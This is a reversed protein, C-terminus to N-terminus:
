APMRAGHQRSLVDEFVAEVARMHQHIDFVATVRARAARAMATRRAPDNVLSVIAGALADADRPPVLLGTEGDVVIELPGGERPAIVPRGAAMAELVVRGFPERDSAHIVVDMADMCAAVDRRAGTVMVHGALDPAAIREKLREAYEAGLRHVGGVVLCRLGPVHRRARAVADAVLLQGKWRQVHGVIGVCPATAPIGLERRVAAGGGTAFRSVDIGDYITVFRRARVGRERYHTGIEDTM